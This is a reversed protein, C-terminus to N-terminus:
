ATTSFFLSPAQIPANPQVLHKYGQRQLSEARVSNMIGQLLRQTATMAVGVIRANRTTAADLKQGSGRLAEQQQQPLEQLWQPRQLVSKFEAQYDVLLKQKRLVLDPLQEHLHEEVADTERELVDILESMLQILRLDPPMSALTTPTSTTNM